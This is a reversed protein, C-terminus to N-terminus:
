PSPGPQSQTIVIFVKDYDM